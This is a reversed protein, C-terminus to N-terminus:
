GTRFVIVSAGLAITHQGRTATGDTCEQSIGDALCRELSRIVLRDGAKSVGLFLSCPYRLSNGLARQGLAAESTGGSSGVLRKGRPM